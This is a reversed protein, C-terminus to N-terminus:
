GGDRHLVSSSLCDFQLFHGDPDQIIQETGDTSAVFILRTAATDNVYLTEQQARPGGHYHLLEVHPTAIVPALGIVDVIPAPVGDLCAQEIGQNLTRSSQVLGLSEYFRISRIADAVSFASHDIGLHVAAATANRWHPPMKGPAFQLFELPHGDPDRFKFATVGGDNAPLRQPGGTTIATWGATRHLRELAPQMDSVVIGFHQFRLDYPSLEPPYPRGPYEYEVIEVPADGLTLLSCEASGRVDPSGTFRYADHRERRVVEAGFAQQYFRVLRHANPSNMGFRILARAQGLFPDNM